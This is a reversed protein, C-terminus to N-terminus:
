KTHNKILEYYHRQEEITLPQISTSHKKKIGRDKIVEDLTRIRKTMYQAVMSLWSPFHKKLFHSPIKILTTPELAIITASRPLGDFYSLEGIYEGPGVHALPTVMSNKHVCIMLQGSHVYYLDNNQEGEICLVDDKKLSVNLDKLHNEM